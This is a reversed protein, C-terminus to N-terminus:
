DHELDVSDDEIETYPRGWTPLGTNTHAPSFKLVVGEIYRSPAAESKPLVAIMPVAAVVKFFKRRTLNM